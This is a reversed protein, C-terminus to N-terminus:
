SPPAFISTVTQTSCPPEMAIVLRNAFPEEEDVQDPSRMALCSVRAYFIHSKWVKSPRDGSDVTDVPGVVPLVGIASDQPPLPPAANKGQGINEM